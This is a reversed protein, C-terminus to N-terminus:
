IHTSIKDRRIIRKNIFIKIFYRINVASNSYSYTIPWYVYTPIYM